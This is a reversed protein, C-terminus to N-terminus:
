ERTPLWGPGEDLLAYTGGLVVGYLVHWGVLPVTVNPVTPAAASGVVGLWVPMVFGAGVLALVLAYVVGTLVTKWVRESVRYLAPDSLIAAFVVGFLTGHALHVLWGAALNGELTYLGAIAERLVALDGVTIAAGMAVTALFGSVAGVRWHWGADLPEAIETADTTQTGM